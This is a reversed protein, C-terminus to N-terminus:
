KKENDVNYCNELYNRLPGSGYLFGLVILVVYSFPFLFITLLFVVMNNKKKYKKSFYINAFLYGYYALILSAVGSLCIIIYTLTEYNTKFDPIKLIIFSCSALFILIYAMYVPMKIDLASKFGIDKIKLRKLLLTVLLSTLYGEMVGMLITTAVLMILLFSSINNFTPAYSGLGSAKIMEEYTLYIANIQSEVSTGFLPLIFFAVLVEAVVYVISAVINIKRRDFGKKISISVALGVILSIPMYIYTTLSGFLIALVLLGACLSLSDKVTYMTSYIAIVVPVGLLILENFMFSLQRDILMLAGIIALLMAGQTLKKTKNM